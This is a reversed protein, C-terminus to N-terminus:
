RAKESNDSLDTSDKIQNLSEDKYSKANNFLTEYDSASLGFFERRKFSNERESLITVIVKRQYRWFAGGGVLLVIVGALGKFNFSFNTFSLSWMTILCGVIGVLISNITLLIPEGGRWLLLQIKWGRDSKSRSGMLFSPKNDAPEFALYLLSDPNKEYFWRRARGSIRYLSIIAMSYQVSHMLTQWGLIGLFIALGIGIFFINSQVFPIDVISGFGAVVAGVLFLYFNIRNAKVEEFKLSRDLVSQYETILFDDVSKDKSQYPMDPSNM